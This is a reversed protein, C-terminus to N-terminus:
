FGSDLAGSM